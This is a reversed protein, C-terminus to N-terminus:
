ESYMRTFYTNILDNDLLRDVTFDVTDSVAIGRRLEEPFDDISAYVTPVLYRFYDGMKTEGEYGVPYDEGPNYGEIGNYVFFGKNKALNADSYNASEAFDDNIEEILEHKSLNRRNRWSSYLDLLFDGNKNKPYNTFDQSEEWMYETLRDLLSEVENIKLLTKPLNGLCNNVMVAIKGKNDMAFWTFITGWAPTWNEDLINM